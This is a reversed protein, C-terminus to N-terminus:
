RCPSAWRRAGSPDLDLVRGALLELYEMAVADHVNDIGVAVRLRL